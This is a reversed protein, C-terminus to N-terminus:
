QKPRLAALVTEGPGNLWAELAREVIQAMPMGTEESFARVRDVLVRPIQVPQRGTGSM